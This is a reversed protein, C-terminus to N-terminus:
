CYLFSFSSLTNIVRGPGQTGYVCIYNQLYIHSNLPPPLCVYSNDRIINWESLKKMNTHRSKISALCSSNYPLDAVDQYEPNGRFPQLLVWFFYQFVGSTALGTGNREAFFCIGISNIDNFHPKDQNIALFLVFLM